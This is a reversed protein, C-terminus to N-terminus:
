KNNGHTSRRNSYNSFNTTGQNKQPIDTNKADNTNITEVPSELTSTAAKTVNDNETDVPKTIPAFTMDDNPEGPAEDAVGQEAPTGVIAASNDLNSELTKDSDIEAPTTIDGTDATKTDGTVIANDSNEKAPTPAPVSKQANLSVVYKEYIGKWNTNTLETQAHTKPDVFYPRLVSGPTRMIITLTQLDVKFPSFVPAIMGVRPILGKGKCIIPLM